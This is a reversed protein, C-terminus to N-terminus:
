KAIFNKNTIQSKLIFIGHDLIKAQKKYVVYSYAYYLNIM